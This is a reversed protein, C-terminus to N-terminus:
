IILRVDAVKALYKHLMYVSFTFTVFCFKEVLSSVYWVFSILFMNDPFFFVFESLM